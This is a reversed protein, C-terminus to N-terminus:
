WAGKAQKALEGKLAEVDIQRLAADEHVALAAATGAVEGLKIITRSLRTSSAAIHSFSAARSAIMLNTLGKVLLCRYPIGFAGNPLAQDFGGPGHLDLSHDAIAIIDAHDQKPLGGQVDLQNLVYEGIIRRSERVGIEPAIGSLTYGRYGGESTLWYFHAYVRRLAERRLDAFHVRDLPDGTLMGCRNILVDGNAMTRAAVGGTCYDPPTDPPLWPKQGALGPTVRYMLTLANVRREPRTPALTELYDTFADQGYRHESGARVCLDGDATCDIYQKARIVRRVDGTQVLVGRVTGEAVDADVFATQLLLDCNGTERLMEQACWDWAWPEFPLPRGRTQGQVAGPQGREYPTGDTGGPLQGMREWLEQPIGEAGSVPEWTHVWAMTTTGGLVQNREVAIVKAGKRAAALAAGFGGSGAGIVCVDCSMESDVTQFKPMTEQESDVKRNQCSTGLGVGVAVTGALRLFGRRSAQM